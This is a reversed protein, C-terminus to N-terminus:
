EEVFFETDARVSETRLTVRVRLKVTWEEDELENSWGICFRVEGSALEYTYDLKDGHNNRNLVSIIMKKVKSTDIEVGAFDDVFNNIIELEYDSNLQDISISEYKKM